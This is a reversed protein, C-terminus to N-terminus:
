PNHDQPHVEWSILVVLLIVFGVGGIISETFWGHHLAVKLTAAIILVFGFDLFGIAPKIEKELFCCGAIIFVPISAGFLAMSIYLHHRYLIMLAATALLILGVMGIKIAREM